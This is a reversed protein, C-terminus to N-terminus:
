RRKKPDSFKKGFAGRELVEKAVGSILRWREPGLNVGGHWRSVVVVVNKSEMVELLRSLLDGSGREGGDNQGLSVHPFDPANNPSIRYAYMCHSARKLSPHTKLEQLLAPLLEPSPLTTAHAIFVSNKKSIRESHYIPFKWFNSNATLGPILAQSHISVANFSKRIVVLPQKEEHGNAKCGVSRVGYNRHNVLGQVCKRALHLM